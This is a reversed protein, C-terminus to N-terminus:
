SLLDRGHERAERVLPHGERTYRDLEAATLVFLDAPCPLPGLARRVEPVRDRPDPHASDSLVVLLDADSRPTPIGSVLSGDEVAHEAHRLDRAAQEWWDRWRNM